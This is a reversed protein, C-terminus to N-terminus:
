DKNESERGGDNDSDGDNMGDLMDKKTSGTSMGGQVTDLLQLPIEDNLSLRKCIDGCCHGEIFANIGEPGFDGIGSDSFDMLNMLHSSPFLQIVFGSLTHTMPDFLVLGDRGDVQTPTGLHEGTLKRSKPLQPSHSRGQIDAFILTSNSHGYSFHAFASITSSRLDSGLVPHHLTGSFRQLSHSRRKEVLWLIGNLEGAYTKAGSAPSPDEIADEQLLFADAFKIGLM